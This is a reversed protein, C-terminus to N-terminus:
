STCCLCTGSLSATLVHLVLLYGLSLGNPGWAPASILSCRTSQCCLDISFPFQFSRSQGAAPNTHHHVSVDALPRKDPLHVGVPQHQPPQVTVTGMRLHGTAARTRALALALRGLLRRHRFCRARLVSPLLRFTSLDCGGGEPRLVRGRGGNRATDVGNTCGV